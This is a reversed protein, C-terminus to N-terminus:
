ALCSLFRLYSRTSFLRFAQFDGGALAEASVDDEVPSRGYDPVCSAGHGMKRHSNLESSLEKPPCALTSKSGKSSHWTAKVEGRRPSSSGRLNQLEGMGEKSWAPPPFNSRVEPDLVPHPPLSSRSGELGPSAAVVTMGDIQEDTELRVIPENVACM